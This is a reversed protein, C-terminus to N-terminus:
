FPLEQVAKKNNLSFEIVSSADIIQNIKNQIELLQRQAEIEDKATVVFTFRGKVSYRM